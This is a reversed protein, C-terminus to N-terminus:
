RFLDDAHNAERPIWRIGTWDTSRLLHQIENRYHRAYEHKLPSERYILGHIVGMNDNELGVYTENNELALELGFCVSAWETETSNAADVNICDTITSSRDSRFLIAAVRASKKSFSGDTQVCAIPVPIQLHIPVVPLRGGIRAYRLM